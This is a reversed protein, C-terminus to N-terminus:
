PSKDDFRNLTYDIPKSPNRKAASFGSRGITSLEDLRDIGIDKNNQEGDMMFLHM